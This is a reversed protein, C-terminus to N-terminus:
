YSAYSFPIKSSASLVKAICWHRILAFHTLSDDFIEIDDVGEYWIDLFFKDLSILDIEDISAFRDWNVFVRGSQTKISDSLRFSQSCPDADVQTAMSDIRQIIELGDDQDPVGLFAAVGYKVRQCEQPSLSRFDPFPVGHTKTFNEIKWREM